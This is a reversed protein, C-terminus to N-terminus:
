WCAASRVTQSPPATRDFEAFADEASAAWATSALDWAAFAALLAGPIAAARTLRGLPWVGIAVGLLITWWVALALTSRSALSYGGDAYAVAFVVAGVALPSGPLRPRACRGAAEAGPRPPRPRSASQRSPVRAAVASRARRARARRARRPRSAAASSRPASRTRRPPGSRPRRRGPPSSSEGRARGPRRARGRGDARGAAGRDVRDPAEAAEAHDHEADRDDRDGRAEDGRRDGPTAARVHRVASLDRGAAPRALVRAVDRRGVARGGPAAGERRHPPRGHLDGGRRRGADRRAELGVGHEARDDVTAAASLPTRGWVSIRGDDAFAVFPFRFATLAPKPRDRDPSSGAFYLGSQYPSTTIPHDRITFWTVLSVGDSWMRYLAEAVWRGELKAPVGAPDPPDSDWSFETVWFRVPKASVVHGARVGADLVAKMEPLDGISVDNARYAHHTPGGATYPDTSWIDFHVPDTCAPKLCLLSRM